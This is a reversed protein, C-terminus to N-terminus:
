FGTSRKRKSMLGCKGRRKTKPGKTRQKTASLPAVSLTM